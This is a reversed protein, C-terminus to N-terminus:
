NRIYEENFEENQNGNILFKVKNIETLETMTNVITKIMNEKENKEEKNYQLIESSFDIILCDGETYTKLIQTNQPIISRLKENKPGEILLTVLKEYPLNIIDKIDILRAEPYIEGTEKDIFYLSVLTQRSQEETIEQEPTYEEIQNKEKNKLYKIGYYGGVIILILLILFILFGKKNKVKIGGKSLILDINHKDKKSSCYKKFYFIM